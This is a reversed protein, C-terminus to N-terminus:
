SDVRLVTRRCKKCIYKRYSPKNEKLKLKGGCKPCKESQTLSNIAAEVCNLRRVLEERELRLSELIQSTVRDM